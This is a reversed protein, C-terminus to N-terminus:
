ILEPHEPDGKFPGQVWPSVWGGYFEGPNLWFMREKWGAAIWAVPIFVSGALWFLSPKRQSPTVGALGFVAIPAM